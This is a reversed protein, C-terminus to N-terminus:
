AEKEGVSFFTNLEFKLTEEAKEVPSNIVLDGIIIKSIKEECNETFFQNLICAIEKCVRELLFSNGHIEKLYNTIEQDGYSIVEYYLLQEEKSKSLVVYLTPKYGKKLDYVEIINEDERIRRLISHPIISTIREMNNEREKKLIICYNDINIYWM